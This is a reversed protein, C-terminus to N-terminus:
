EMGYRRKKLSNYNLVGVLDGGRVKLVIEGKTSSFPNNLLKFLNSQQSYNLVMEGSNALVPVTDGAYSYGGIIGGYQMKEAKSKYKEWLAILGSVAIGATILGPLGKQAEGSIAKIIALKLFYGILEQVGKLMTEIFDQAAKKSDVFAEGVIGVMDVLSFSIMEIVRQRNEEIQKLAETKREQEELAKNAEQLANVTNIVEESNLPYGIEVLSELHSKYISIEENLKDYDKGLLLSMKSVRNLSESYDDMMKTIKEQEEEAKKTNEAIKRNFEVHSEAERLKDAYIQVWKSAPGYGEKILKEVVSKYYSAKESWVDFNDGLVQGLNEIYKEGKKFEALLDQIKKKAEEEAEEQEILGKLFKTKLWNEDNLKKQLLSVIQSYREIEIVSKKIVNEHYSKGIKRDQEEWQKIQKQQIDILGEYSVIIEKIAGKVDDLTKLSKSSINDMASDIVKTIPEWGMLAELDTPKIAENVKELLKTVWSVATKWASSNGLTVLLNDWADKFNSTKGGLTEMQEKMLGFFKGGESSMNFIAKQVESFGIKGEEVLGMVEKKNVGMVKALEELMPVGRTTFQRIDQSYARGQTRLTGYLYAMDTFSINLGAAVEGLHQMENLVEEQTSGYALLQKIAATIESLQFPSEIAFETAKRMLDDALVKSQLMVKFSSATAEFESRVKIISSAFAGVGITAFAMGIASGLRGVIASTNSVESKVRGMQSEFDRVGKRVESTDLGLSAWMEGINSM